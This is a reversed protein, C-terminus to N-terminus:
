EQIRVRLWDIALEYVDTASTKEQHVLLKLPGTAADLSFTSSGLVLVGDLYLKIDAPNRMDMWFEVRTGATYDVTTDTANVETTGDDSEAYINVDNANLHIFLSETIADADTAHTGNAIGISIDAASGSGDNLVRFAGEVIARADKGFGDVSLADVKQAENTSSLIFEHAGGRRLLALGGLAQTGVIVTSFADRALDILYRTEVNFRVNVSTDGAPSDGAATGLYFDRDNNKRYTAENASYDWYVPGGDLIAVSTNKLVTYTDANTAIEIRTGSSAAATNDWVAAEGNPAQLVQAASISSGATVRTLRADRINIAERAM